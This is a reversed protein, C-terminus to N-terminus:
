ENPKGGQWAGDFMGKCVVKNISLRGDVGAGTVRVAITKFSKKDPRFISVNQFDEPETTDSAPATSVTVDGLTLYKNFNKILSYSLTSDNIRSAQVISEVQNIDTSEYPIEVHYSNVIIDSGSGVDWSYQVLDVGDDVVLRLRENVICSSRVVADDIWDDLIVPSCWKGSPAHYVMVKRGKIWLEYKGIPDYAPVVPEEETQDIWGDFESEVNLHFTTNVSGDIDIITPCGSWMMLRDNYGLCCNVPYKAGITKSKVDLQIPAEGGVYYLKSVSQTAIRWHYTNGANLYAVAKDETFIKRRKRPFNFTNPISYFITGETDEVFFTDFLFGAFYGDPPQFADYPALNQGFLDDDSWSIELAREYGDVAHTITASGTSSGTANDNVVANDSDVVSTIWSDLHAGRVIRRGVDASTFGGTGVSAQITNLGNSVTLNAITRTYAIVSELVEGGIDVPLEYFNGLDALGLLPVGIGWVTANNTGIEAPFQVILSQASLQIVASPISPLSTQGTSADAKWIVVSVSASMPKQNVSPSTKPFVLPASPRAHGVEFQDSGNDFTGGNRILYQLDTNASKTTDAGEFFIAGVGITFLLDIAQFVSGKPTESRDGLGAFSGDTLFNILAGDVDPVVTLGKFPRLLGSGTVMVNRSGQRMYGSGATIPMDSAFGNFFNFEAIIM